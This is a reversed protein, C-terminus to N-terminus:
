EEEVLSLEARGLGSMEAVIEAPGELPQLPLHTGCLVFQGAELGIGRQGLHNALWCVAEVPDQPAAGVVEVPPQGSVSVTTVLTRPDFTSPDAGGDGLVAGANTINQAIVDPLHVDTLKARRLDLLELAPVFRDIAELAQDRDIMGASPAIPAKLVAAIEPEFAFDSFDSVRRRAPSQSAQDAHIRGSAPEAIRFFDMLAKSNVAIKFGAVAGRHGGSILRATVADQDAYASAFDRPPDTAYPQFPTGDVIDGVIGAVHDTTGSM